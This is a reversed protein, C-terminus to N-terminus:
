LAAARRRTLSVAAVAGACATVAVVGTALLATGLSTGSEAVSSLAGTILPGLGLGVMTIFALYVGNVSVRAHAPIALQVGFLGGFLAMGLIVLMVAMSATAAALGPGWVLGALPVLTAALALLVLMAARDEFSPYRGALWGALLPGSPAAFLTVIGILLAADTPSLGREEVFLTPLWGLVSQALLVPSAAVCFLPLLALWDIAVNPSAPSSGPEPASAPGRNKGLVVLVAINPLATAIFLWRWIEDGIDYAIKALVWLVMGVLLLATSRGATASGIFFGLAQARATPATAEFLRAIAVPVFIGQGIGMAARAASLESLSGALGTAVSGVTWALVGGVLWANSAQRGRLLAGLALATAGYPVAFATGIIWGAQADTMAISTRLLPLLGGIMTRDIFALCHLAALVLVLRMVVLAKERGM